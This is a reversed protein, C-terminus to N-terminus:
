RRFNRDLDQLSIAIKTPRGHPCTLNNETQELQVILQKAQESSLSQGAKIASRCALFELIKNTQLDVASQQQDNLDSILETFLLFLDHDKFLEPLQSVKITKAGFQEIEFGLQQFYDLHESLTLLESASFELLQAKKLAIVKPAYKQDTFAQLFQQYLIREHAAHQDIIVMGNDTSVVLYLNHIQQIASNSNITIREEPQWTEVQEKLLRGARTNISNSSKRLQFNNYLLNYQEIIQKVLNTVMRQIQDPNIFRVQEKRPHINSDVFDVPLNINILFQPYRTNEILTGWAQKVAQSIMKDSVLRENVFIYQRQATSQAIQPKGLFAFISVHEEQIFTPIFQQSLQSGFLLTVRETSKEKVPPLDFIVKKNHLLVFHVSVNHLAYATVLDVILRLETTTHKLFKLRAPTSSFLSQITVTTGVPMGVPTMKQLEGGKVEIRQGSSHSYQRSEITLKSVAAISALAEGRFGLSQVSNLDEETQIKSTTHLKYCELLDEKSMGEGNDSVVMKKLGAQELSIAIHDAGADLANEILEKVAYVPREIVEGAAIKAILHEPLLQISPM